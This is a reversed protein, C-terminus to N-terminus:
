SYEIKELSDKISKITDSLASAVTAILHHQLSSAMGILEGNGNVVPAGYEVLSVPRCSLSIQDGHFNRLVFLILV